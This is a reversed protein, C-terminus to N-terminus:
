SVGEDDETHDEIAGLLLMQVAARTESHCLAAILRARFAEDLCPSDSPMCRPM